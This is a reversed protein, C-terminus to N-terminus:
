YYKLVKIIFFLNVYRISWILVFCFLMLGATTSFTPYTGYNTYIYGVGVPGLVRSLCGASTLLGVWLGQPRTGLLKSYITQILTLTVPYAMCFILYALVFQVITIAPTTTCWTQSWPCGVIESSNDVTENILASQNIQIQMLPTTTGWPLLFISGLGMPLYGFCLLVTYDTFITAFIPILVSMICSLIAGISMIIGFNLLAQAKTWAFQDM